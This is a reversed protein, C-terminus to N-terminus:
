QCEKALQIRLQEVTSLQGGPVTFKREEDTLPDIRELQRFVVADNAESADNQQKARHRVRKILEAVPLDFQLIAFGINRAKAACAFKSRQSAHLFTADVVVSFGSQIIKLATELLQDYVAASREESYIGTGPDSGSSQMAKLGAMRKREIDSRLRVMQLQEIISQTGYTKGSGSPGFTIVLAPHQPQIFAEALQVYGASEECLKRIAGAEVDPQSSRLLDVKARVMARYVLYYRLVALGEYDGTGQLWRNLFRGALHPYGHDHLDMMTFAIESIVDIWRFTDNFEIGDFVVARGNHDMYMNGLHMDGHCERIRGNARRSEFTTALQKSATMTWERLKQLPLPCASICLSELVDINEIAPQTVSEISGFRSTTPAIAVSNHFEAVTDALDDVIVDSLQGRDALRILLKDDDFQRMCVAYDIVEGPGNLVPRSLSGSIPIVNIYLEPALRRNLRLEEECFHKRKALTSFDAFGLNVPKKIKYVLEGTLLVWSIHTEILRITRVPHPYADASLLTQIALMAEETM